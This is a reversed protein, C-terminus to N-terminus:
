QFTVHFASAHFAIVCPQNDELDYHKPVFKVNSKLNCYFILHFSCKVTVHMDLITVYFLLWLIIEPFIKKIGNKTFLVVDSYCCMTMHTENQQGEMGTVTKEQVTWLVADRGASEIIIEDGDATM